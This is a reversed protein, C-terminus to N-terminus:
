PTAPHLIRWIKEATLPMDVHTCGWPRLADVVANVIAPPPGVCGAEGLGKAGLPNLPSPTSMKTLEPEPFDDGRPMAYDMLTATLLQGEGDYAIGELLAQGVGQAYGGHLQGEALLPNVITGADDVWVCRVLTVRGTDCDIAVVAICCGSSWSEGDANFYVTADLGPTEGRPLGTGRYALDAVQKWTVGREPVGTVAFGGAAPVVDEHAAELLAAALRRGKELVETAARHIASGGLATSRSGFTGVGQPGTHTDSRKVRVQGPLVGLVDAAIQAWTTEHGQGHASSGTFVTVVGTREIRVAGSEWGAAAPEVYSAIGIGMIEGRARARSQEARLRPYDALSLAKEPAAPYNGSDYVQDTATRYPFADAPILNRRRIEAPDLALAHAAEDVLREILFAGEPRGAGRYPGTPTQTTYAGTVEVDVAPVVYAGTVTRGHNRAPGSGNIVLQAGLSIAARVRLGTIRGDASVALEGRARAGRGHQTSLFDEARTSVWKVPRGLLLALWAVIAEDRYTTGKVGFGGGVDPAIVRIRHEDFGTISALEARARFPVQTALWVTLEDAAAHYRALVSRPELPVAALRAQDVSLAVVRAASAFAAAVDGSRWTGVLARNTGLEPHVVMAGPRQAAEPDVVAPLAEYEVEILDAADRAAAASEAAIAVLPEGAAHVTGHALLPHPAIRTDRFMVNVSPQGLHKVQSGTVVSVVGTAEAAATVDLRLVRAHAHPSRVFHVSLIGPLAVDDTYCGAGTILARDEM